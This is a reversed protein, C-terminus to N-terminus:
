LIKRITTPSYEEFLQEFNEAVNDSALSRDAMVFYQPQQKAIATITDENVNPEFCAMLYGESVNWVTKGALETKEIKDVKSNLFFDVGNLKATDAMAICLEWPNVIAASPAFLAGKVERSLNPEMKFTQEADLLQINPVGNAVGNEYLKKITKLDEDDFALVFSGCKKYHVSLKGAIEEIMKNGLVNLKAMETGPEPDYGAHVIASNAKTTGDAIDNEKELVAVKINYRALQYATAAGIVGCGIIAVDYMISVKGKQKTLFIFFSYRLVAKRGNLM